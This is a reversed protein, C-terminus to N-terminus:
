LSQSLAAILASGIDIIRRVDDSDELLVVFAAAQALETEVYGSLWLQTENGSRSMAAFAGAEAQAVGSLERWSDALLASLQEASASDLLRISDPSEKSAQWADAEPQRTGALIRPSRSLGDNAVAAMITALHLPTTTQTGQGLADRRARAEPSSAVTAPSAAIPEPQPFGPLIAPEKLRFAAMAEDVDAAANSSMYRLFPAPCGFSLAQPLTLEDAGPQIVCNIATGDDLSVADAAGTFRLSLDFANDIADALWLLYINGGLQYNGQLARNFFPKGEAAVLASWDADLRNPDYSPQSLLALLEGTEVNILVAAGKVGGLGGALLDQLNADVTLTINAGVPPLNLIHREFYDSFSDLPRRDALMEDYAAEAGAVGYRLSYYGVLSYSSPLPYHRSLGSDGAVTQALIRGNRDLISGRQIRALAEISRPNDERALLTDRGVIAWYSAAAAVLMLSALAGLLLHRIQRAFQM